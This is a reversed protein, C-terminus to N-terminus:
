LVDMKATKFNTNPYKIIAIKFNHWIAAIECLL